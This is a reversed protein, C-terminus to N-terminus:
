EKRISSILTQSSVPRLSIVLALIGTLLILCIMVLISIWPMGSGGRISPMTAIVSSVLGTTVGSFLIREQDGLIMKKIDKLSYGTAMMLGFEKKRQNFNRLLMFGLGAVGL